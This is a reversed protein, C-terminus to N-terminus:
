QIEVEQKLSVFVGLHIQYQGGLFPYCEIVVVNDDYQELFTHRSSLKKKPERIRTSVKYKVGNLTFISHEVLNGLLTIM